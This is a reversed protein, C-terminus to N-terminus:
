SPAEGGEKVFGGDFANHGTKAVLKIACNRNNTMQYNAISTKTTTHHPPATYVDGGWRVISVTISVTLRNNWGWGSM